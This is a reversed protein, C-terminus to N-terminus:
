LATGHELNHWDVFLARGALAYPSTLGILGLLRKHVVTANVNATKTTPLVLNTKSSLSLYGREYLADCGFTCMPLVVDPNIREQATCKSRKKLHATILFQRPYSEGCVACQAALKGKFLHNKLTEHEKRFTALRKGDIADALELGVVDRPEGTADTSFNPKGVLQFVRDSAAQDHVYRVSMWADATPTETSQLKKNVETRQFNCKEVGTLFYIFEFDESAKGWIAAALTTSKLTGIIVGKYRITGSETMFLTLDGPEMHRWAIEHKCGWAFVDGEGAAILLSEREAASLPLVALDLHSALSKKVNDPAPRGVAPQLVLKSM